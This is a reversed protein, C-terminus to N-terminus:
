PAYLGFLTACYDSYRILLALLDNAPLSHEVNEIDWFVQLDSAAIAGMKIKADIRVYDQGFKTQAYETAKLKFGTTADTYGEALKTDYIQAQDSSGSVNDVLSSQKIFFSLPPAGQQLLRLQATVTLDDGILTINALNPITGFELYIGSQFSGDANILGLTKLDSLLQSPTGTTLTINYTM